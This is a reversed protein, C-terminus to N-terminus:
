GKKKPKQPSEQHENICTGILNCLMDNQEQLLWNQAELATFTDECHKIIIDTRELSHIVLDKLTDVYLKGYQQSLARAKTNQLFAKELRAIKLLLILIVIALIIVAISVILEQSQSLFYLIEKIM